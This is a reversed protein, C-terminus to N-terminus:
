EPRRVRRGGRRYISSSRLTVHQCFGKLFPHRSIDALISFSGWSYCSAGPHAPNERLQIILRWSAGSGSPVRRGMELFRLCAPGETPLLHKLTQCSEVSSGRREKTPPPGRFMSWIWAVRPPFAESSQSWLYGRCGRSAASM